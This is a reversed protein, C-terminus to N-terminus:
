GGRWEAVLVDREVVTRLAQRVQDATGDMDRLDRPDLSPAAVAFRVAKAEFQRTAELLRYCERLSENLATQIEQREVDLGALLADLHTAIHEHWEREMAEVGHRAIALDEESVKELRERAAALERRNVQLEPRVAQGVSAAGELRRRQDELRDADASAAQRERERQRLRLKAETVRTEVRGFRGGQRGRIPGVLQIM